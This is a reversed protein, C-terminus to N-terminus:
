ENLGCFLQWQPSWLFEGCNIPLIKLVGQPKMPELKVRITM